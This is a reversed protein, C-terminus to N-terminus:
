NRILTYSTLLVQYAIKHLTIHSYQLLIYGAVNSHDTISVTTYNEYNKKECLLLTM